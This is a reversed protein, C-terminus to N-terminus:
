LIHYFKLFFRCWFWSNNLPNKTYLMVSLQDDLSRLSVKSGKVALDIKSGQVNSHSEHHFIMKKFHMLSQYTQFKCYIISTAFGKTVILFM